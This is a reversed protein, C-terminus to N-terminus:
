VGGPEGGSLALEEKTTIAFVLGDAITLQRVKRWETAEKQWLLKGDAANM